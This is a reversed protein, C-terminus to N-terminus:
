WDDGREPPETAPAANGPRVGKQRALDLIESTRRDLRRQVAPAAEGPSAAQVKRLALELNVKADVDAPKSRLAEAFSRAAEEFRGQEYELTGLNFRARFLLEKGEGDLARGITDRAAAPEGLAAYVNALDYMVYPAADDGARELANLYAVTAKGYDGNGHRLNGSLVLLDPQGCSSLLAAAAAAWAAPSARRGALGKM